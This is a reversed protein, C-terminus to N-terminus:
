RWSKRERAGDSWQLEFFCTECSTMWFMRSLEEGLDSVRWTWSLKPFFYSLFHFWKGLTKVLFSIDFQTWKMSLFKNCPMICIGPFATLLSPLKFPWCLDYFLSLQPQILNAPVKRLHGLVEVADQLVLNAVSRLPAPLHLVVPCLCVPGVMISVRGKAVEAENLSLTTQLCPPATWASRNPSPCTSLTLHLWNKKRFVEVTRWFYNSTSCLM